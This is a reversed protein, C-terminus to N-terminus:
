WTEIPSMSSEAIHKSKGDPASIAPVPRLSDRADDEDEEPWNVHGDEDIWPRHKGGM